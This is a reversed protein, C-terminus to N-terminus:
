SAFGISPVEMREVKAGTIMIVFDLVEEATFEPEQQPYKSTDIQTSMVMVEKKARGDTPVSCCADRGRRYKNM